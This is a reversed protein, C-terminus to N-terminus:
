EDEVSNDNAAMVALGSGIGVLLGKLFKNKRPKYVTINKLDDIAVKMEKLNEQDLMVLTRDSVSLLKGKLKMGDKTTVKLVPGKSGAAYLSNAGWLVVIVLVLFWRFQQNFKNINM